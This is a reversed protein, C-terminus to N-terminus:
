PLDLIEQALEMVHLDEEGVEAVRHGFRRRLMGAPEVFGGDSVGRFALALAPRPRAGTAGTQQSEGAVGAGSLVLQKM